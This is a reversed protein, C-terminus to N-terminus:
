AVAIPQFCDTIKLIDRSYKLESVEESVVRARDSVALQVCVEGVSM